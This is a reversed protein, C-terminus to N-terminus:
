IEEAGKETAGGLVVAVVSFRQPLGICVVKKSSSNAAYFWCVFRSRNRVSMWAAVGHTFRIATISGYWGFPSPCPRDAMLKSPISRIYRTGSQEPRESSPVSSVRYSLGAVRRKTPMSGARSNAMGNRSLTM